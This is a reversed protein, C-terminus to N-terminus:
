CPFMRSCQRCDDNNVHVMRAATPRRNRGAATPEGDGQRSTLRCERHCAPGTIQDGDHDLNGASNVAGRRPAAQAPTRPTDGVPFREVAASVGPAHASCRSFCGSSASARSRSRPFPLSRREPRTTRGPSAIASTRDSSRSAKFAAYERNPATASARSRGATCLNKASSIWRATPEFTSTSILARHRNCVLTKSSNEGATRAITSPRHGESTLRLNCATPRGAQRKRRGM